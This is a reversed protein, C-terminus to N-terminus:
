RKVGPVTLEDGVRVGSLIEVGAGGAPLTAKGGPQVVVDASGGQGDAVRVFDLGFRNFVFAQPVVTTRRKGASIWVLAREGVFYGGLGPVEADAVVRGGQLEPYVQVIRGKATVAHGPGLGRAGVEVANGKAIFRAHREPLELRLLYANAAITAISEGAMVVSGETVPVRLVRGAAPALVQGEAAQEESVQREARAAKLENASVDLASKLQDVRAQPTVGRQRLQEARDYDSRATAVRSELGVIQADLAKIKLAIKPDAVTAVLQGATVESGAEVKLAVVTGPTRVRAEIRDKSHVSALVSKLDDVDQEAVTFTLTDAHGRTLSFPGAALLIAALPWRASRWYITHM